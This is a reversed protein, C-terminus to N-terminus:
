IGEVNVGGARVWSTALDLRSLMKDLGSRSVGLLEAARIKRGRSRRMAEVILAREVAELRPRLGLSPADALDEPAEGLDGDAVSAPLLQDLSDEDLIGGPPRTAVLRELVQILERVNGPWRHDQLRRLARTTMGRLATGAASSSEALLHRVLAPIDDRAGRLPPVELVGGALRYYLDRRLREGTLDVHTAAIVWVDVGRPRGGVPQIEGEQLVRLLKAQLAPALEGIEDLFLTGGEARAFYGPRPEVGSAAGGVIGFMEAELLNAPIAACNVVVYPAKPDASSDHLTRALLEKGVGTEGHLLVPRRRRCLTAMRHYLEEMAPSRGVVYGPPFHLSPLAREEEVVAPPDGDAGELLRLVIRLWRASLTQVPEAPWLFLARPRSASRGGKPWWAVLEGRSTAGFTGCRWVGDGIRIAPLERIVELSPLDGLEGWAARVLPIGDATWRVRCLGSLGLAEALRRLGESPECSGLSPLLPELLALPDGPTSALDIALTESDGGGSLTSAPDGGGEFRIALEAGEAVREAVLELPGIGLRAGATVAGRAVSQGDIFTGNKSDLDEIVLGQEHVRLIAHHRSVGPGVLRVDNDRASGLAYQGVVLEFVRVRGGIEAHLRYTPESTQTKRM